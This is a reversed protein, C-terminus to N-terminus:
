LDCDNSPTYVSTASAVARQWETRTSSGPAHGRQKEHPLRRRLVNQVACRVVHTVDPGELPPTIFDFAGREMAEIYLNVDLQPSVVVVNIPLPCKDALSIVDRWNGDALQVDTFVLHPPRKGWLSLLTEGCTKADRTIICQSELIPKLSGFVDKQDHVLLASTMEVM